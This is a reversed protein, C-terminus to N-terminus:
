KMEGTRSTLTTLFDAVAGGDALNGNCLKEAVYGDHFDSSDFDFWYCNGYNSLSVLVPFGEPSIGSPTAGDLGGAIIPTLVIEYRSGTGPCWDVLVPFGEHLDDMAGRISAPTWHQTAM